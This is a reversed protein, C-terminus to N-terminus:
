RCLGQGIGIEGERFFFAGELIDPNPLRGAQGNIALPDAVFHEKASGFRIALHDRGVAHTPIRVDLGIGIIRFPGFFEQGLGSVGISELGNEISDAPVLYQISAM